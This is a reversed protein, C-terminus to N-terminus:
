GLCSGPRYKRDARSSGGAAESIADRSPSRVLQARSRGPRPARRARMPRNGRDRRSPRRAPAGFATPAPGIQSLELCHRSVNMLTRAVTAQRNGSCHERMSSDTHPLLLQGSRRRGPPGFPRRARIELWGALGVAAQFATASEGVHFAQASLAEQEAQGVTHRMTAAKAVFASQAAVLQPIHLM